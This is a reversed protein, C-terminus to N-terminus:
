PALSISKRTEAHVVKGNKATVIIQGYELERILQIIQWEHPKIEDIGKLEKTKNM